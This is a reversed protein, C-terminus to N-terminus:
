LPEKLVQPQGRVKSILLMGPVGFIESRFASFGVANL